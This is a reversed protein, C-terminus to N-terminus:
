RQLEQLLVIFSPTIRMEFQQKIQKVDYEPPIKELIDLAIKKIISEKNILEVHKFDTVCLIFLIKM